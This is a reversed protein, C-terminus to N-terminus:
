RGGSSQELAIMRAAIAQPDPRYNGAAIAARLAAVRATDVPPQAAMARVIHGAGGVNVAGPAPAKPATVPRAAQGAGAVPLRLPGGRGVNDIM